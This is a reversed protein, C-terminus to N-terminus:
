ENKITKHLYVNIHFICSYPSTHIFIHIESADAYKQVTSYHVRSYRINQITHYTSRRSLHIHHSAFSIYVCVCVCVCVCMYIYIYIYIFRILM